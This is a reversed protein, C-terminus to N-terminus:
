LVAVKKGDSRRVPRGDGRVKAALEAFMPIDLSQAGDSM